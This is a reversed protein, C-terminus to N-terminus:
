TEARRVWMIATSLAGFVAAFGLLAALPVLVEDVGGVQSDGLGRLFWFHPAIVSLKAMVGDGQNVPFFSGGILALVMGLAGQLTTAHEIKRALGAVVGTISVAALVAALSLVGVALPDGWDAGMLVTSSLVLVAMAGLGLVVSTLAKAVVVSSPRIPAALLRSMTGQDREEFMGMIGFLVTFFLFMVSMGAMLHTTGDLQRDDAELQGVTLPSAQQAADEVLDEVGAALGPDSALATAVSLQTGNVRYAFEDAIASAVTTGIPADVNGLVTLEAESRDPGGGAGNEASDGSGDSGTRGGGSTGASTAAESFGPPFVLVADLEDSDIKEAAEPETLGTTLQIELFESEELGQRLLGPLEGHDEDVIGLELSFEDAEGIVTNLIFALGFPALVAIVYASRDRLRLRLDKALILLVARM